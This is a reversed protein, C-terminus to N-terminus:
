GGNLFTLATKCERKLLEVNNIAADRETPNMDQYEAPIGKKPSFPHMRTLREASVFIRRWENGYNGDDECKKQHDNRTKLISDTGDPIFEGCFNCFWGHVWSKSPPEKSTSGAPPETPELVTQPTDVVEDVVKGSEESGDDQPFETKSRSPLEGNDAEPTPIVDSPQGQNNVTLIEEESDTEDSEEELAETPSEVTPEKPTHYTGDKAIQRLQATTYDDIKVLIGFRLDDNPIQSLSIAKSIQGGKKLYSLLEPFNHVTCLKSVYGQDINLAKSIDQQTMKHNDKLKLVSTVLSFGDLNNRHYNTAIARIFAEKPPLLSLIRCPVKKWKLVTAAHYRRYGSHLQYQENNIEFVELGEVYDPTARKMQSLFTKEDEEDKFLIRRPNLNPDVKIQDLELMQTKM